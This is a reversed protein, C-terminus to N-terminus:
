FGAAPAYSMTGPVNATANRQAAGLATGYSIAVPNAWTIVPVAQNVDIVVSLTAPSYNTLDDPTFTASLVQAKGANLMTGRSPSYVIQGAVGSTANLQTAGLATGFSIAGPNNWSLAPLARRIVNRQVSVSNGAADVGTVTIAYQKASPLPLTVQFSGASVVPAYSQGDVTVTVGAASLTDTLTGSLVLTSQDTSIDLSPTTVALSPSTTDSVVTRNVTSSNGALDTATLAITNSGASLNLTVSFANGTMAASQASGGNVRASLTGPNDLYGTVVVSTASLTSNDAPATVTIVPQTNDYTITRSDTAELGANDIATVTFTNEGPALTFAQSFANLTGLALPAGNIIVSKIGNAGSANGTISLIGSSTIAGDSLTFVSVSPASASYGVILAQNVSAAASFSANGDQSATITTTGVGVVTVNSGSVTAVAPNSSAFSLTLGSSASASLNFPADSLLKGALAAFSITQPAKQVDIVVSTTASQYNASDTPTFSVSLTQGIGSGLAAGSAPTYLFSGPVSATANLQHADLTAGAPIPLPALWSLVPIAKIVTQVAVPSSSGLFTGAGGYVGTISHNGAGLASITFSAVGGSLTGSGLLTAGDFLSVTGTPTGGSCTVSATFTVAQGFSSPNPAGSVTTTTTTSNVTQPLVPSTSGNFSAAGSYVATISHSGVILASTTFSAAGGSLTGTGLLTAGDFFAVTGTPTVSSAVTATITVAQGFSSPSPTATATTTTAAQTVIQSHVPATSGTFSADGGYVATISRSGVALTSTTLTAVAGSLTGSGLLTAGDFFSVTGTPTGAGAAVSATLTVAQGFSSPNPASTTATTTSAQTVVQSRVPSVSGTFSADGGYVATISRSGVALASTTLTAAGGSLTSSGLLSAGDFFSVTGTPTGFGAAVSATLTVAQGFSSPSPASTATTTSSAQTVVQSHVPSTSGIFSADGGYVATISRSGVGLASTTFTAVAGSLTGTGLLTAGDFFSVTGSPTGAAVSVSATLTVAQGFSSPNPASTVTTASASPSVIQTQVAATSGTFSPSGGYVTTISHSGVSLASTTFTATGGSLTVTGLLTAGDFFSVTGSPTVSGAVTATLAVAQGFSAPAPTATVTTTAGQSVVQPLLASTSGTFSASGGYVATISHSGVSLASTTFTAIGGSLTGTGLLTAGDFFSVTGTPTANGAVTATVTVAQGFSSPSPAATATTTTTGQSVSHTLVPATSGSFSVAGSYLATISHSGVSLASSTFTTVGGSLTGTGLLTAGDFFSVTGTPTGGSSAVSATITAAQGFSSPNPASTATTTSAAQTVSRTITPSTSGAFNTAGAYVATISHSGVSLAASALTAVGGSLTGTGLLTAGDFFSVSGTPTATGAVTATLTVSQGFSSPNPASTVTTSTAAQTVIQTQVASTSAGFGVAGNYAATLSHSAVGLASTAFTAVGASLTSSGLLTAGDFFSVSGTPTGAGSSVSATLTASQGFGSPNPASTLTTGTAAPCALTTFLQDQGFGTGASNVGNVRFHYSTNCTLGSLTLAAASSGAGASISAGTDAAVSSGYSASSGYDFSVATDAGNDAVTGNLTAASSTVGSAATTTASPALIVGSPGTIGFNITGTVGSTFSTVVLTYTTGGVLQIQPLTSKFNYGNSFGGATANVTDDNGYMLGEAGLSPDFSSYLFLATDDAASVPSGSTGYGYASLGSTPSGPSLNASTVAITYLGDVTPTFSVQYYNYSDSTVVASSGVTAAADPDVALGAVVTSTSDVGTAASSLDPRQFVLETTLNGSFSTLVPEPFIGAYGDYSASAQHGIGGSQGLASQLLYSTSSTSGGGNALVNTLLLYNASTPQAALSAGAGLVLVMAILWGQYLMTKGIKFTM